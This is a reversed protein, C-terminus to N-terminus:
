LRQVLDLSASLKTGRVILMPPFFYSYSLLSPPGWLYEPCEASSLFIKGRGPITDFGMFTTVKASLFHCLELIHTNHVFICTSLRVYEKLGIKNPIERTKLPLEKNYQQRIYVNKACNLSVSDHRFTMHKPVLIPPKTYCM